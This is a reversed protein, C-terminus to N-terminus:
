SFSQHRFGRQDDLVQVLRNPSRSTRFPTETVAWTPSTIAIIPEEPEPLLVKSRQM